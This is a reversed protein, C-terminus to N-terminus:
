SAKLFHTSVKSCLFCQKQPISSHRHFFLSINVNDGVFDWGYEVRYGPGFGAGLAPHLYDLGGDVIAVRVGKGTLNREHLVDVHALSHSHNVDPKAGPGSVNVPQPASNSLREPEQEMSRQQYTNPKWVQKVGEIGYVDQECDTFCVLSVANFVDASYEQKIQFTHGHAKLHSVITHTTSMM